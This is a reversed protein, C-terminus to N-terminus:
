GTTNPFKKNLYKWIAERSSGKRDGINFIADTIMTLYNLKNPNSKKKSASRKKPSKKSPSRKKPSKAKAPSGPM